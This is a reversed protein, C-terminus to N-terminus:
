KKEGRNIRKFRAEFSQDLVKSQEKELYYEEMKELRTELNSEIKQAREERNRQRKSLKNPQIGGIRYAQYRHQFLTLDWTPDWGIGTTTDFQGYTGDAIAQKRLVNAVRKSVVPRRWVEQSPKAIYDGVKVAKSTHRQPKLAEVGKECLHRVAARM